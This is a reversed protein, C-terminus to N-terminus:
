QETQIHELARSFCRDIMRYDSGQYPKTMLEEPIVPMHRELLARFDVDGIGHRVNLDYLLATFYDNGKEAVFVEDENLEYLDPLMGLALKCWFVEQFEPDSELQAQAPGAFSIALAGAIIAGTLARMGMRMGSKWGGRAMKM